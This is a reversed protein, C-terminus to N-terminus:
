SQPFPRVEIRPQFWRYIKAKLYLYSLQNYTHHTSFTGSPDIHGDGALWGLSIQKFDNEPIKVFSEKELLAKIDELDYDWIIRHPVLKLNEENLRQQIMTTSVGMKKAMGNLGEHNNIQKILWEKSFSKAKNRIEMIEKIKLSPIKLSQFYILIQDDSIYVNHKEKLYKSIDILRYKKNLLEWILNEPLYKSLWEKKLEQRCDFRRLWMGLSGRNIKFSFEKFLIEATEKTTKRFESRLEIARQKINEPWKEETLLNEPGSNPKIIKIKNNKALTAIQRKVWRPSENLARAIEPGKMKGYNNIIFELKEPNKRDSTIGM